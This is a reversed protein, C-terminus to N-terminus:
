FSKSVNLVVQKKDYSYIAINSHTKSYSFTLKPTLGKFHVNRNWLSLSASYEKNQQKRGLFGAKKYDRKGVGLTTSSSFGLPWEQGWTLRTGVRQYANTEDKASKKSMDLSLSWYQKASPLYMLTNNLSHSQGNYQRSYITRDYKEYGFDYVLSYKVSKGLWYAISSNVGYTNSYRKLAQFQSSAGGAYWRKDIYPTLETTLRANSYGLGLGINATLDNYRKNDWYYKSALSSNLLAYKGGTLQWQKNAGVWASLGQGKQRSSSSTITGGNPLTITTGPKASNSLNKDNLFTGGFSFSWDDKRNIASIYNDFLMIDKSSLGKVARLREFQAKAAEYEQNYFLTEALQFRIFPNDPFKTQLTRYANVSQGLSKERLLLADAWDILSQDKNPVLRYLKIYTPLVATNTSTLAELFLNELIEPQKVLERGTYRTVSGSPAQSSQSLGQKRLLDDKSPDAAASQINTQSPDREVVPATEAYAMLTSFAACTIALKKM